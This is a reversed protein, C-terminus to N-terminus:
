TKTDYVKRKQADTLTDYANQIELWATPNGGKDPHKTLALARYAAKIVEISAERHVQLVDYHTAKHKTQQTQQAVFNRLRQMEEDLQRTTDRLENKPRVKQWHQITRLSLLRQHFSRKQPKDLLKKEQTLWRGIECGRYVEKPSILEGTSQEFEKCLSFIYDWEENEYTTLNFTSFYKLRRLRTKQELPLKLWSRQQRRVWAGLGDVSFGSLRGKSREYEVAQDFLDAM